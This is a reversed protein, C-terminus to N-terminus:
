GQFYPRHSIKNVDVDMRQGLICPIVVATLTLLLAALTFGSSVSPWGGFDRDRGQEKWVLFILNTSTSVM